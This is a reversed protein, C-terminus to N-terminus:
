DMSSVRIWAVIAVPGGNVGGSGNVTVFVAPRGSRVAVSQRCQQKSIYPPPGVAVSGPDRPRYCDVEFLGDIWGPREFSSLEFKLECSAEHRRQTAASGPVPQSITDETGSVRATLAQGQRACQDVRLRLSLEGKASLAKAFDAPTASANALTEGDLTLLPEMEGSVEFIVAEFRYANGIELPPRQRQKIGDAPEAPVSPPSPPAPRATPSRPPSPAPTQQALAALSLMAALGAAPLRASNFRM